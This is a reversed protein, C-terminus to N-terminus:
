NPAAKEWEKTLADVAKLRELLGPLDRLYLQNTADCLARPPDPHVEMFIGDVGVAAAGLALYPIFERNGGTSTGAAGPLQVSHTADFVVAPHEHPELAVRKGRRETSLGTRMIVFSRFDVVLNHYGFSAGRETIIVSNNGADQIKEVIGSVDEPALFQGKKVNVPKGTRAAAVLLDTQRCLFAPIQIVDLVHAAPGMEEAGHVDSLVPVGVERRVRQLIDLGEEMGPGRASDISTRNAKDYSSKYVFPISLGACIRKIERAVTLAMSETEIVCPGAILVFPRGGGMEIDGIRVTRTM